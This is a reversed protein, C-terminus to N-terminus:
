SEEVEDGPSTDDSDMIAISGLEWGRDWHVFMAHDEPYPNATRPKSDQYAKAGSEGAKRIDSLTITGKPVDGVNLMPDTAMDVAVALENLLDGTSGSQRAWLLIAEAAKLLPVIAGDRVVRADPTFGPLDEGPTTYAEVLHLAHAYDDQRDVVVERYRGDICRAVVVWSGSVPFQPRPADGETIVDYQPLEISEPDAYLEESKPVADSM